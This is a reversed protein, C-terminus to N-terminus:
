KWLRRLPNRTRQREEVLTRHHLCSDRLPCRICAPERDAFCADEAVERLLRLRTDPDRRLSTELDALIRLTREPDQQPGVLGIRSAVRHIERADNALWVTRVREEIEGPDAVRRRLPPTPPAPPMAAPSPAFPALPEAPKGALAPPPPSPPSPSPIPRPTPAVAPPAASQPVPGPSPPPSAAVPNSAAQPEDEDDESEQNLVSVSKGGHATQRPRVAVFVPQTLGGGAVLAEGVALRQVEDAVEASIGEVSAVIAKLDNPNTVKLVVQTNCQSLVNKDIKAPRQSVIVLGLGFKRGESAITRIVPGSVANGVNREPCFNHAEEVVLIHAPVENRKRAEWLM